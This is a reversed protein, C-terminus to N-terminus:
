PLFAAKIPRGIWCDPTKFGLVYAVTPAVDYINIPSQIEQGKAVGPGFAIWPIEIEELSNGGHGKEKGGHDSIVLLLTRGAIGAKKLSTVIRDVLSDTKEIVTLYENSGYGSSHGAHDILDLHIFTLLPKKEEIFRVAANVTADADAGDMIQDVMKREFLRGFGDWEHFVGTIASPRQEHILSFITPFMGGPGMVTPPFDFDDAEWDNDTVGHQEPGAGMLASAWNPSSSTPMVARMHFSHVGEQMLRDLVPTNAKQLGSSSLGDCGVIVVHEVGTVGAQAFLPVPRCAAYFGATAIM